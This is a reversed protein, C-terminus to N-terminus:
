FDSNTEGIPQNHDFPNAKLKTNIDFNDAFSEPLHHDTEEKLKKLIKNTVKSLNMNTEPTFKKIKKSTKTMKFKIHQKMEYVAKKTPKFVSAEYTSTDEPESLNSDFEEEDSFSYVEDEHTVFATDTKKMPKEGLNSNEIMSKVKEPSM